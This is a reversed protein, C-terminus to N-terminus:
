EKLSKFKCNLRNSLDLVCLDFIRNLCDTSVKVTKLKDLPTNQIIKLTVFDQKSILEGGSCNACRFTGSYIDIKIDGVFKMGCNDCTDFNLKYGIIELVTTMFKVVCLKTNIDETYVVNQLTKLLTLFLSESIINPKMIIKCVELMFNCLRFNEYDSTLDFFTDILDVGKVVYFDSSKVMDFSGFCFPQGAFKLKSNAAAVGKLIGTVVGLEVTFIHILKDKDKYPMSSLVIGTVTLEEM